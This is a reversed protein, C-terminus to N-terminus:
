EFEISRFIGEFDQLIFTNYNLYEELLPFVMYTWNRELEEKSEVFFYVHGIQHHSGLNNDETTIKMNIKEFLSLIKEKLDYSSLFQELWRSLISKDPMCKIFQFRRRLAFDVIAISRDVSNMTGIILLNPPIVLPTGLYATQLPINRYELGLILEGFIRGLDGRNIEDIVLVVFKNQSTVQSATQCLDRFLKPAISYHITGISSETQVTVGEVFDEYGYSPHFQIIRFLEPLNNTIQQALGIALHTKGTGPPGYLIIQRKKLLITKLESIHEATWFDLSFEPIEQFEALGQNEIETLQIKSKKFETETAEITIDDNDSGIVKALDAIELIKRSILEFREPREQNLIERWNPKLTYKNTDGHKEFIEPSYRRDKETLPPSHYRLTTHTTAWPTKAEISPHHLDFEDIFDWVERPPLEKFRALIVVCAEWLFLENKERPVAEEYVPIEIEGKKEFLLKNGYETIFYHSDSERQDVLQFSLLYNLRNFVQFTRTWTLNEQEVLLNFLEDHHLPEEAKFLIELIEPFFLYETFLKELIPKPNQNYYFDRGLTALAITPLNRHPIIDLIELTRLYGGRISGEGVRENPDLGRVATPDTKQRFWDIVTESPKGDLGIFNVFEEIFKIYDRRPGPLTWISRRTM